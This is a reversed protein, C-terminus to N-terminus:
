RQNTRRKQSKRLREVAFDVRRFDYIITSMRARSIWKACYGKSLRDRRIVAYMRASVQPRKLAASSLWDRVTTTSPFAPLSHAVSFLPRRWSTRYHEVPPLFSVTERAHLCQLTRFTAPPQLQLSM